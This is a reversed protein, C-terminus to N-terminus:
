STSTESTKTEKQDLHHILQRLFEEGFLIFPAYSLSDPEASKKKNKEQISFYKAIACGLGLIFLGTSFLYIASFMMGSLHVGNAAELQNGLDVFIMILSAIFTVVFTMFGFAIFSSQFAVAKANESSKKIFQGSSYVGLGAQLIPLIQKLLKM